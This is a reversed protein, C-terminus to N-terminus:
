PPMHRDVPRDGDARQEGPGHGRGGGDGVPVLGDRRRGGCLVAGAHGAADSEFRSRDSDRALVPFATISMAVGLFLAFTTFTIGPPALRGYIALALSVGCLFPALISAHSIALAAHGRHALLGADFELGVVFMYFIVGIQALVGLYPAASAPLLAQAAGPALWGLLSPGLMIGALVEGIVPPQGVYRLIGGLARGLAIVAALALLVHRLVDAGPKVAAVSRRSARGAAGFRSEGLWRIFFFAALTLALMALYVLLTRAVGPRHAARASGLEAPPACAPEEFALPSEPPKHPM